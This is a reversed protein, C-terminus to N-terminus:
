DARHSRGGARDFRRDLRGAGRRRSCGVSARAEASPCRCAHHQRATRGLGAGAAAGDGAATQLHYLETLGQCKGQRYLTMLWDPADILASAYVVYPQSKGLGRAIQAQTEGLALRRQVFLALELPKLDERQENEIVQAYGDAGADVYAPITPKGLM